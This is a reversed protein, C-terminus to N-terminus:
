QSKGLGIGLLGGQGLALLAQVAQYGGGQRDEWPNLFVLMRGRRFRVRTIALYLAPLGALATFGLYSWPIGAILLQLSTTVVLVVATGLDPQKFVLLTLVALVCMNPLYTHMFSQLREQNLTLSRAIYLVLVYKAFEAPQISLPGLMLWRRAGGVEKGFIPVLVLILMITTLLLAPAALRRQMTYPISRMVWLGILGLGAWLMQRKLFYLSDQHRMQALVASTSYLMALGITVLLLTLGLLAYDTRRAM